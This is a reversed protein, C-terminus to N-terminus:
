ILDEHENFIRSFKFLNNEKEKTKIEIIIELKSDWSIVKIIYYINFIECM